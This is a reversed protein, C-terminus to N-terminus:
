RPSPSRHTDLAEIKLQGATPKVNTPHQLLWQMAGAEISTVQSRTLRARVLPALTNSVQDGSMRAVILWFYARNLDQRVGRGGYYLSGLKSEAPVYGQEAAKTFWHLAEVESLKVGQGTAYRLGLANQAVADGKQAGELLQELATAEMPSSSINLIESKVTQSSALVTPLHNPARSHIKALIWPAADSQMWPAVGWGISFMITAAACVLLILHSRPLSIGSANKEDDKSAKSEEEVPSAFLVSGHNPVPNQKELPKLFPLNEVRAARHAAEIVTEAFRQLVSSDAESFAHPQPAFAEIIGVAKEGVRVPAALLSRIGLARCSVRDVRTDTESDDCRLPQSRKVCEGSFGSGIHLRAGITPADAGSSACCIMSDPDAHALAIATGSAHLLAQGREAILQLARRLDPGLAEVQRRVATVAALTDTYGPRPPAADQSLTLAAVETEGNAVGAMINVFLWERLRALSESPLDSFRLGARGSADSWIVQGTTYIHQSCDALDLCLNITKQAELPSHCQIAIGEESINVIEHLDLMAGKSEATFSAYAPTQIKHRVRRRRNSNASSLSSNTAAM